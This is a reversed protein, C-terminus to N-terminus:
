RPSRLSLGSNESELAASIFTQASKAREGAYLHADFFAGVAIRSLRLQELGNMAEGPLDPCPPAVEIDRIVGDTNSIVKSWRDPLEQKDLVRAMLACGLNDPNETWRLFDGVDAFGLHTGKEFSLFWGNRNRPMVEIANSQEPVVRDFSGSITLSNLEGNTAYFQDSFTELPPAMMVAAKIRSDKYDPHYSVLATTLGGLSLGMAGISDPSVKGYLANGSKSNLSLVHDIVSSVDGPQNAIDLLQPIEALTERGSLPFDVSAVVYGNAALYNALRSNEKHFGSFGHSYVILPLDKHEGKPFWVTGKLTRKDDGGYEGLAPTARSQDSIEISLTEVSFRAQDLRIKSQSQAALDQPSNALWLAFVTAAGVFSIFLLALVLKKFINM